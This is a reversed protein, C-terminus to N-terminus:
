QLSKVWQHDMESQRFVGFWPVRNLYSSIGRIIDVIRYGVGLLKVVVGIKVPILNLIRCIKMESVAILNPKTINVLNTPVMLILKTCRIKYRVLNMNAYKKPDTLYSRPTLSSLHNDILCNNVAMSPRNIFITPRGTHRHTSCNVTASTEGLKVEQTRSVFWFKTTSM